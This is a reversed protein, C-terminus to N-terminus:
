ANGMTLASKSMAWYRRLMRDIMTMTWTIMLRSIENLTILMWWGNM